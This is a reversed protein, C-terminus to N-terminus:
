FLISNLNRLGKGTGRQVAGELMSTLQFATEESFIQEFNEKIKPYNKGLYSIAECRDCMRKESNFITHGESDQIRDIYIPEILKGGNM